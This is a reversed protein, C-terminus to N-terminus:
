NRGDDYKVTDPIQRQAMRFPISGCNTNGDDYDGSITDLRQHPLGLQPDVKVRGKIKPRSPNEKLGCAAESRNLDM